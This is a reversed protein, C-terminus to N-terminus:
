FAAAGHVPRTHSPYLQHITGHHSLASFYPVPKELLLLLKIVVLLLLLLLAEEQVEVIDLETHVYYVLYAKAAAVLVSVNLM